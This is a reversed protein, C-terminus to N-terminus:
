RWAHNVGAERSGPGAPTRVFLVESLRAPQVQGAPDGCPRGCARAPEGFCCFVGTTCPWGCCGASGFGRLDVAEILRNRREGKSKAHSLTVISRKAVSRGSFLRFRRVQGSSPAQLSTVVRAVQRAAHALDLHEGPLGGSIRGM